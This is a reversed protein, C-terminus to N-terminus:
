ERIGHYRAEASMIDRWAEAIAEAEGVLRVIEYDVNTKLLMNYARSAAEAIQAFKEMFTVFREESLVVGREMNDDGRLVVRGCNFCVYEARSWYYGLFGHNTVEECDECYMKEVRLSERKIIRRRKEAGEGGELGLPGPSNLPRHPAGESRRGSM